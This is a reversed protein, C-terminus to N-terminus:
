DGKNKSISETSGNSSRKTQRKLQYKQLWKSSKEGATEKMERLFHGHLKKEIM